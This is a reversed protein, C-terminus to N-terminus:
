RPPACRPSTNSIGRRPDRRRGATPHFRLAIHSGHDCQGRRPGGDGETAQPPPPVPGSAKRRYEWRDGGRPMKRVSEGMLVGRGAAGSTRMARMREEARDMRGSTVRKGGRVGRFVVVKRPFAVASTKGYSLLIVRGAEPGMEQAGARCVGRFIRL